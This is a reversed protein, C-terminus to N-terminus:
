WCQLLAAYYLGKFSQYHNIFLMSFLRFPKNEWAIKTLCAKHTLYCDKETINPTKIIDDINNIQTTVFNM